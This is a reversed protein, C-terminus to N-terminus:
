AKAWSAARAARLRKLEAKDRNVENKSLGKADFADSVFNACTESKPGGWRADALRTLKILSGRAIAQTGGRPYDRYKIVVQDDFDVAHAAAHAYSVAMCEADLFLDLRGAREAAEREARCAAAKELLADRYTEFEDRTGVLDSYRVADCGLGHVLRDRRGAPGAVAQTKRHDGGRGQAIARWHAGYSPLSRHFRAEAAM